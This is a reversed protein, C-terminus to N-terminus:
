QGGWGVGMEVYPYNNVTVGWGLVQVGREGDM